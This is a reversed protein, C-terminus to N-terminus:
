SRTIHFFYFRSQQAMADAIFHLYSISSTSLLGDRFKVHLTYEVWADLLSDLVTTDDALLLSDKTKKRLEESLSRARGGPIKFVRPVACVFTGLYGSGNQFSTIIFSALSLLLFM